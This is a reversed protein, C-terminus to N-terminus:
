HWGIDDTLRAVLVAGAGALAPADADAEAEEQTAYGLVWAGERDHHYELKSGDDGLLYFRGVARGGRRGSSGAPWRTWTGGVRLAVRELVWLNTRGMPFHRELYALSGLPAPDAFLRSLTGPGTSQVFVQADAVEFPHPAGAPVDLLTLPM